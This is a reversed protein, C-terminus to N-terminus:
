RCCSCRAFRASRGYGAVEPRADSVSRVAGCNRRFGSCSLALADRLKRVADSWASLAGDPDVIDPLDWRKSSSSEVAKGVGAETMPPPPKVRGRQVGRAALSHLNLRLRARGILALLRCQLDPTTASDLLRVLQQELQEGFSGLEDVSLNTAAYLWAGQAYLHLIVASDLEEASTSLAADRLAVRVLDDAPRLDGLGRYTAVAIEYRARRRLVPDVEDRLLPRWATSGCASTGASHRTLPRSACALPSSSLTAALQHTLQARLGDSGAQRMGSRGLTRPHWTSLSM